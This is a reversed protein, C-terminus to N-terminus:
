WWPYFVPLSLDKITCHTTTTTTTTTTTIAQRVTTKKSPVCVCVCVRTKPPILPRRVPSVCWQDAISLAMADM